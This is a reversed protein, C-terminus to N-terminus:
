PKTAVTVTIEVHAGLPLDAVAVCTRAPLKGSFYRRYVDNLRTYHRMDKLYVTVTAIDALTLNEKGLLLQINQLIRHTEAALGGAVLRDTEPDVGVQGSVFLLGGAKVFPSFPLSAASPLIQPSAASPQTQARVTSLMVTLVFVLALFKNMLTTFHPPSFGYTPKVRQEGM